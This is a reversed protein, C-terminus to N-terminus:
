TSVELHIIIQSTKKRNELLGYAERDRAESCKMVSLYHHVSSGLPQLELKKEFGSFEVWVGGGVGLAM